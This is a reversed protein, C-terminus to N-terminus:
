ITKGGLQAKQCAPCVSQVSLQYSLVPHGSQSQLYQGLGPLEVDVLAGCQACTFHEHPRVNKEYHDPQGACVIRLIQGSEVMLGLNRYVTGMAIQPLEQKALAYIEEATLHGPVTCIINWITQRQKTM